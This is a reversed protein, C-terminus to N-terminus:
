TEETERLEEEAAHVFDLAEHAAELVFWPWTTM